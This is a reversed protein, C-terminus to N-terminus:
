AEAVTARILIRGRIQTAEEMLSTESQDGRLSITQFGTITLTGLHLLAWLRNLILLAAKRGGTDAWVDIEMEIEALNLGEAPVERLMGDGIVVYPTNTKQPVADYIGTVMGLLVADAQLKSYLTRQIEALALTSM